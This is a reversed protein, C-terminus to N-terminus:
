VITVEIAYNLKQYKLEKERVKLIRAEFSREWAMFQSSVRDKDGYPQICAVDGQADPNRWPGVISLNPVGYSQPYYCVENMLAVREDRAKM